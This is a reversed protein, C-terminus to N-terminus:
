DNRVSFQRGCNPLAYHEHRDRPGAEPRHEVAAQQARDSRVRARLERGAAHRPLLLPRALLAGRAPAGPLRRIAHARVDRRPDLQQARADLARRLAHRRLLAAPARRQPGHVPVLGRSAILNNFPGDFNMSTTVVIRRSHAPGAASACTTSPTTSPASTM